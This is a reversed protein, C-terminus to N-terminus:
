FTGNLGLLIGSAASGTRVGTRVISVNPTATIRGIRLGPPREMPKKKRALVLSDISSAVFASVVLPGATENLSCDWDDGACHGEILTSGVLAALLPLGARLGLSGLARRRQGNAMHVVPGGALYGTLSLIAMEESSAFAGAMGALAVASDITVIQWGYWREDGAAPLDTRPPATVSSPVGQGYSEPAVGLGMALALLVSILRATPTM